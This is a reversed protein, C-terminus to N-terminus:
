ASVQERLISVTISLMLYIGAFILFAVATNEFARPYTAEDPAVPSVGTSLYRVQRNAEIRATEMQELAQALMMQRTSLEGEAIMLESTIRALSESSSSSQTMEARLGAITDELRAINREAVSVRTANPRPNDLLQELNLREQRLETEFTSIQGMLMSVEAEASLIGRQEQLEVVRRQAALVNAEATQYNQLAGAMQDERLRQTLHDVQEEAYAILARSFDASLSPDAATVEMKIIGETPDYAIRVNRSYAKYAEENTAGEPLRQVPDIAPDSFHAKFGHDTDLRLMAERSQLYSQVTMSDQSTAMATGSFLSGLGGGGQPQAQQIVFESKTAYMPTAVAHFYYGTILTPLLVFAALRAFLMALRRRRRRAMDRQVERIDRAMRADAALNPSPLSPKQQPMTQPLKVQPTAEGAAAGAAGVVLELMNGHRFPDIGKKRLLRVADFDSTAEIGHRQAVRRAMRLQRGTLGEARIAAIEADAGAEVPSAVNANQAATPFASAGFGDEADPAAAQAAPGAAGVGAAFTPAAGGGRRVRFKPARPKTTM